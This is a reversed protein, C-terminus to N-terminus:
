NYGSFRDMFSYMACTIANDILVDIHPQPFNDKPCAKNLDRYDVCIRVKRDKKPVLIVNDLWKPYDVVEM